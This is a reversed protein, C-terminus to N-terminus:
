AIKWNAAIELCIKKTPQEMFREEIATYIKGAYVDILFCKNMDYVNGRQKHYLWLVYLWHEAEQRKLKRKTFNFSMFGVESLGSKDFLMLDIKSSIKVNEITITNVNNKSKGLPVRVVYKILIPMIAKAHSCLALLGDGSYERNKFDDKKISYQKADAKLQFAQRKIEEFSTEYEGFNVSLAERVISKAKDYFKPIYDGTFKATLVISKKKNESAACYRSFQSLSLRPNEVIKKVKIKQDEEM